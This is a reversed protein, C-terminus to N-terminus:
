DENSGFRLHFLVWFMHQETINDSYFMNRTIDGNPSTKHPIAKPITKHLIAM